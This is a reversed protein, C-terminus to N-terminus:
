EPASRRVRMVAAAGAIAIFAWIVNVASSPIAGHYLANVLLGIAGFFNLAHYLVSTGRVTVLVYAGVVLVAGTWGVVEYLDM